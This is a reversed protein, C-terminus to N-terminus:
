RQLQALLDIAVNERGSALSCEDGIEALTGTVGWQSFDSPDHGTDLRVPGTMAQSM